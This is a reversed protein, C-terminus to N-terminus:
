TRMRSIIAPPGLGLGRARGHGRVVQLHWGRVGHLAGDGAGAGGADRAEGARLKLTWYIQDYMLILPRQGRAKRGRNEAVIRECIAKLAEPAIMTGHPQAPQVPMAAPREAPAPCTAGGHAHLRARRSTVVVVRKAGMMHAYHNNNWSPVPYIVTDGEDVVTRYTGYIIPRAGGAIVIGELPYKLGLAREYFRQVARACIWCATRPRITRRARRCRRPSARAFRPQPHPVGQPQLRGRHPQVGQPGPAALERIEAAIRLIESGVLGRAMTGVFTDDRKPLLTTLDLAM